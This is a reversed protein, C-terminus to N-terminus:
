SMAAAWTWRTPTIGRRIIRMSAMIRNLRRSFANSFAVSFAAVIIELMLTIRLLTQQLSKILTGQTTDYETMYVCGVVTGYYVIPTAARSDTIGDHYTWTFVNNGEPAQKSVTLAQLIEPLLVYTGVSAGSSDYLAAGSHDTVVLRTVKLSELQNVIGTVTSSNLVELTSIEDSALLCKEIMSAEKSQYFLKHSVGSCYINLFFLVVLTVVVYTM